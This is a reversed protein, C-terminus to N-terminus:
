AAPAPPAATKRRVFQRLDGVTRVGAIEANSITVRFLDELFFIMETLAISDFGLDAVLEAEDRIEAEKRPQHDRLTSLVIADAAQPDGSARFRAYAERAQPPFHRLLAAESDSASPDPTAHPKM